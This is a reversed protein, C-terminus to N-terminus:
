PEEGPEPWRDLYEVPLWGRFVEQELVSQVRLHLVPWNAWWLDLSVVGNGEEEEEEEEGAVGAEESPDAADGRRGEDSQWSPAVSAIHTHTRPRIQLLFFHRPCPSVPIIAKGKDEM